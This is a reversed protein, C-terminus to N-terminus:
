IEGNAIIKKMKVKFDQIAYELKCLVRINGGQFFVSYPSQM